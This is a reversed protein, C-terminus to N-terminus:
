LKQYLIKGEAEFGMFKRKRYKESHLIIDNYNATTSCPKKCSDISRFEIWIGADKNKFSSFFYKGFNSNGTASSAIDGM